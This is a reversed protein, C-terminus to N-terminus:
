RTSAVAQYAAIPLLSQPRLRAIIDLYPLAPKVM